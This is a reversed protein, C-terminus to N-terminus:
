TTIKVFVGLFRNDRVTRDLRFPYFGSSEKITISYLFGKGMPCGIPSSFSVNGGLGNNENRSIKKRAPGVHITTTGEILSHFALHIEALPQASKLIVTAQREGRTWFGELEQGHHNNDQFYLEYDQGEYVAKNEFHIDFFVYALLVFSLLFVVATQKGLNLSTSGSDAKKGKKIYLWVVLIIAMTWFIVPIPDVTKVRVFSPIMKQFDIFTNSIAEFLRSGIAEGYYDSSIDEHYLIWPNKLATWVILFSLATGVWKITDRIRSRDENLAIALCLTLVWIVPILPRGPPCYGGWYHYASFIGYVSFLSILMLARRRNQKFLFFLGAIGLLLVPAYIFIGLRQDLFYGPIRRLFEIPDKRLINSFLESGSAPVYASGKYASRVSFNGYTSYFYFLYLCASLMIPSLSLFIRGLNGPLNKSGWLVSSLVVFLFLSLVIYKIGFWPLLGIGVASLFLDSAHRENKIALNRFAFLTILAVPIEPYILHSFFIIPVTFGFVTWVFMSVTKRKTIDHVVLFFVLGLLATLICLPVRSFFVLTKRRFDPDKARETSFRIVEEGIMYAPVMLVPLAPFHKSYLYDNGKKGPYAHTKLPGPYFDLYDEEAYNNALNIDRDQILSKTVLLYHPEDGTFPQPPFVLGSALMIYVVLSLTFLLWSLRKLPIPDPDWRKLFKPSPIAQPAMTKLRSTFSLILYASGMLSVPLLYGRIDKLFVLYQLFYLYLLLFPSLSLIISRSLDHQPLGTKKHLQRVTKQFFKTSLAAILAAIPILALIHHSPITKHWFYLSLAAIELGCLLYLSRPKMM